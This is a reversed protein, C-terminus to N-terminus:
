VERRVVVRRRGHDRYGSLRAGVVPVVEAGDVREQRLEGRTHVPPLQVEQGRLSQVSQIGFGVLEYGQPALEVGVADEEVGVEALQEGSASARPGPECLAVRTNVDQNRAILWWGARM